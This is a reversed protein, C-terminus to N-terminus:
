QADSRFHILNIRDADMRIEAEIDPKGYEAAGTYVILNSAIKAVGAHHTHGCLVTFQRHPNAAAARVLMQGIQGCVFFPAWHDDTTRGLYWCSERLPPVHTVLLVDKARSPLSDLKVELRQASERGLEQLRRKWDSPQIQLFDDILRFDQLRVHSNEFDGETADGWGDDGVIYRGPDLEIPSCDTLYVLRTQQRAASIVDQRVRAISSGYFDHNGLVFYIPVAFRDAFLELQYIVDDGTSIDGSIVIGEHGHSAIQEFWQERDSDCVHNLHPDTIWVLRM